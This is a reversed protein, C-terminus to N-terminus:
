DIVGVRVVVHLLPLVAFRDVELAVLGVLFIV